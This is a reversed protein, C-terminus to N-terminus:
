APRGLVNSVKVKLANISKGKEIECNGYMMNKKRWTV